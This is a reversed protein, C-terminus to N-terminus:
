LVGLGLNELDKTLWCSQVYSLALLLINWCSKERGGTLGKQVNRLNPRIYQVCAKEREAGLM